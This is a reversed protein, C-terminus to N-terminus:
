PQSQSQSTNTNSTSSAAADIINRALTSAPVFYTGDQVSQKIAAVKQERVDPTSQVAERAAQLSRADASLSVSDARHAHQHHAGGTKTDAAAAARTSDTNQIYTLAASQAGLKDISM